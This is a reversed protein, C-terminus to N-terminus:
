RLIKNNNKVKFVCYNFKMSNGVNWFNIVAVFLFICFINILLIENKERILFKTMKAKKIKKYNNENVTM